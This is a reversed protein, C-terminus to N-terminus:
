ISPSWDLRKQYIKMRVGERERVKREVRGGAKVFVGRVVFAWGVYMIPVMQVLDFM